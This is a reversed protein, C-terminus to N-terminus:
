NHSIVIKGLQDASDMRALAAPLEEFGFVQDVHVPIEGAAVMATVAEFDAHDFMTSGIIEHQKFFLAPVTIQVKPGSTSGCTVLRGGATLSRMSQDWTAPGVNELVVQAGGAAAKLEKSFEGASDFGGAAGMAIAKQIKEPSRSTVYVTAGMALGLSLGASSVGGGVGVVLLVDGAGLRARRLMRYATGTALGYAGAQEWALGPPRVVVNTAPVVVHSALTGWAHEGLIGLRGGYPIGDTPPGHPLSPDIIVEDGPKWPETGAGIADIRGAGDAGTVHPFSRPAPAGMSTWIDLHNLASTQLAVRVEGPGPEPTDLEGLTYSSLGNTDNLYWARM